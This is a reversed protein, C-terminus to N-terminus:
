EYQLILGAPSNELKGEITGWITVLLQGYRFILPRNPNDEIKGQNDVLINHM